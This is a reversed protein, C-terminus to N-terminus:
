SEIQKENLGIVQEKGVPNYDYYKSLIMKIKVM